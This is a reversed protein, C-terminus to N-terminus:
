LGSIAYLTTISTKPPIFCYTKKTRKKEEGGGEERGIIETIRWEEMRKEIGKRRGM